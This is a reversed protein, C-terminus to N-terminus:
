AAFKLMETPAHGSPDSVSPVSSRLKANELYVVVTKGRVNLALIRFVTGQGVGYNDPYWKAVTSKPSFPIFVHEKGVVHGDFQLGSYGGLKM